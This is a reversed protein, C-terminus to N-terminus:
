QGDVRRGQAARIASCASPRQESGSFVGAETGGQAGDGVPQHWRGKGKTGENSDDDNSDKRKLSSGVLVGLAFMGAAIIQGTALMALNETSM